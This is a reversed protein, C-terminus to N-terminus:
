CPLRPVGDSHCLTISRVQNLYFDVAHQGAGEAPLAPFFTFPLGGVAARFEPRATGYWSVICDFCGLQTKLDEPALGLELLDLGTSSIARVRDAFRVLPVNAAGTWVELYGNK